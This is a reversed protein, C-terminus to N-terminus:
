SLGNTYLKETVYDRCNSNEFSLYFYYDKKLLGFCDENGFRSCHHEGCGGYVDINIYKQLEHIYGMRDNWADCNSIFAAATKTKGAAYNKDTFIIQSNYGFYIKILFKSSV